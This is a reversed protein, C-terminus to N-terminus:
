RSFKVKNFTVKGRVPSRQLHTQGLMYPRLVEPIVVGGDQEQNNEVIAMILRPVACATGNVTEAHLVEGRNGTYKLNLRRSQYDTCNSASSIEGWFEKAPMWTEIDFKRYAPAGLEQSPMELVRFHLGLNIFLQKEIELFEALLDDGQGKQTVGFMEVKTFQHVRYIGQEEELASVEARYCRSVACVKKPLSTFKENMFLGALSMESTGALCLINDHHSSELKYVQNREGTTKFGCAEVVSSNLLDPVSVLTFGRPLINDLTYRILAQELRALDSLFYYTRPGTTHGVDSTRLLNLRQGIDVVSQPKFTFDRKTGHLGICEAKEESGIPSSTSTRNPIKSAEENLQHLLSEKLTVDAEKQFSKWLSIMKSVDGVGKRNGINEEIEKKKNEDCLYEWDFEPQPAEFPRTWADPSVDRPALSLFRALVKSKCFSFNKQSIRKLMQFAGM